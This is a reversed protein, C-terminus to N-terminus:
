VMGRLTFLWLLDLRVVDVRDSGELFGMFIRTGAFVDLALHKEAQTILTRPSRMRFM